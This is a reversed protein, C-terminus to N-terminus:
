WILNSEISEVSVHVRSHIWYRSGNYTCYLLWWMKNGDFFHWGKIFVHSPVVIIIFSIIIMNLRSTVLIRVLIWILDHRYSIEEHRTYLSIVIHKDSKRRWCWCCHIEIEKLSLELWLIFFGLPEQLLFIKEQPERASWTRECSFIFSISTKKHEERWTKLHHWKWLTTWM